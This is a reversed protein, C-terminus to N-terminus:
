WAIRGSLYLGLAYLMFNGGAHLTIPVVLNKEKEYSLGFLLGGVIQTYPAAGHIFAFLATSVILALALGWRRLFGFVLGRFIIEESIGAVVTGAFLYSALAEWNGFGPLGGAFARRLPFHWVLVLAAGVAAVLVLFCLGWLIGRLIGPLIGKRRLGLSSLGPRFRAALLLVCGTELARLLIVKTWLATVTEPPTPVLAALVELSAIVGLSLFFFGASVRPRDAVPEM